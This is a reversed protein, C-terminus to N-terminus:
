SDKRTPNALKDKVADIADEAREAAEAVAEKGADSQKGM